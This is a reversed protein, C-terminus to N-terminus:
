ILKFASVRIFYADPMQQKYVCNELFQYSPRCFTIFCTVPFFYYTNLNTNFHGIFFFCYYQIIVGWAASKLGTIASIMGAAAYQSVLEGLQNHRYIARLVNMCHTRREVNEESDDNATSLLTKICHHFSKNARSM